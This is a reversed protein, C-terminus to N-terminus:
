LANIQTKLGKQKEVSVGESVFYFDFIDCFFKRIDFFLLLKTRLITHFM